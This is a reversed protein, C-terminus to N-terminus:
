HKQKFEEDEVEELSPQRSLKSSSVEDATEGEPTAPASVLVIDEEDIDQTVVVVPSNVTAPEPGTVEGEDEAAAVSPTSAGSSAISREADDLNDALSTLSNLEASQLDTSAHETNKATTCQSSECKCSDKEQTSEPKEESKSPVAGFVTNFLFDEILDSFEEEHKDNTASTEETKPTEPKSERESQNFEGAFSLVGNLFGSFVEQLRGELEKNFKDDAERQANRRAANATRRANEQESRSKEQLAKAVLQQREVKRACAAHEHRKSEARSFAQQRLVEINVARPVKVLLSHGEVLYTTQSLDYDSADFQYIQHVNDRKSIIELESTTQRTSYKIHYDEFRDTYPKTLKVQYSGDALHDSSIQPPVDKKTVIVVIVSKEDTLKNAGMSGAVSGAISGVTGAGLKSAVDAGAISGAVSAAIGGINDLHPHKEPQNNDDSM